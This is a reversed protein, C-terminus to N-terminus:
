SGSKNALLIAAELEEDPFNLLFKLRDSKFTMAPEIDEPDDRDDRGMMRHPIGIPFEDLTLYSVTGELTRVFVITPLGFCEFYQKAIMWKNINLHYGYRTLQEFTNTVTRIEAYGTIYKGRHIAFDLTYKRPLKEFRAQCLNAVATAIALEKDLDRKNEHPTRHRDRNM